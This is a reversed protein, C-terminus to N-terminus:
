PLAGPAQTRTQESDGREELPPREAAVKGARVIGSLIILNPIGSPIADVEVGAQAMVVIMAM